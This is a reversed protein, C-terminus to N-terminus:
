RRVQVCCCILVHNTRIYQGANLLRVPHTLAPPLGPGAFHRHCERRVRFARVPPAGCRAELLPGAQLSSGQGRIRMKHYVTVDRAAAAVSADAHKFIRTNGENSGPLTLKLEVVWTGKVYYVGVFGSKRPASHTGAKLERCMTGLARALGRDVAAERSRARTGADGAVAPQDAPAPDPPHAAGPRLLHAQSRLWGTDRLTRLLARLQPIDAAGRLQGVLVQDQLFSCVPCRSAAISPPLM